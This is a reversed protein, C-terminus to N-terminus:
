GRHSSKPKEYYFECANKSYHKFCFSIIRICRGALCALLGTPSFSPWSTQRGALTDALWKYLQGPGGGPPKPLITKRIKKIKKIKKFGKPPCKQENEM